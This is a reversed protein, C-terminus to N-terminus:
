GFSDRQIRGWLLERYNDISAYPRDWPALEREEEPEVELGARELFYRLRAYSEEARRLYREFQREIRRHDVAGRIKIPDWARMIALRGDRYFQPDFPRQGRLEAALDDLARSLRHREGPLADAGEQALAYVRELTGIVRQNVDKPARRRVVKWLSSISAAAEELAENSLLPHKATEV